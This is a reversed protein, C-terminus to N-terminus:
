FVQRATLLALHSELKMTVMEGGKRLAEKALQYRAKELLLKGSVRRFILKQLTSMTIASTGKLLVALLEDGGLKLAGLLGGRLKRNSNPSNVFPTRAGARTSTNHGSSGPQSTYEQLLHLFIESELDATALGTSCPVQLREKVGLLVSRYTPRQRRLTARADAALFLFRAELRRLLVDRGYLEGGEDYLVGIMTEGNGGDGKALSKLVPSLLSRGYLISWLEHLEADSALELVSLLEHDEDGDATKSIRKAANASTYRLPRSQNDSTGYGNRRLRSHSDKQRLSCPLRSIRLTVRSTCHVQQSHLSLLPLLHEHLSLIHTAM